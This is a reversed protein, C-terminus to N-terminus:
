TRAEPLTALAAVHLPRFPLRAVWLIAALPKGLPHLGARTGVSILAQSLRFDASSVLRHPLGLRRPFSIGIARRQPGFIYEIWEASPPAADEAGCRPTKNREPLPRVPTAGLERILGVFDTALSAQRLVHDSRLLDAHRLDIQPRTFRLLLYEALPVHRQAMMSAFQITESSWGPRSVGKAAANQIKHYTSTAIALPDRTSTVITWTHISSRIDPPFDAVFGHKTGYEVGGYNELLEKGVATCGTQPAQIFVLRLERSIIM